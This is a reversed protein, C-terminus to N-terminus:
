SPLKAFTDTTFQDWFKIHNALLGTEPKVLSKFFAYLDPLESMQQYALFLVKLLGFKIRLGSFLIYKPWKVIIFHDWLQALVILFRKKLSIGM